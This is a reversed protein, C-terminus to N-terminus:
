RTLPSLEGKIASEIEYASVTIPGSIFEPVNYAKLLLDNYQPDKQPLLFPASVRGESDCHAIFLRTYLGDLRKSSFLIWRGNSSWAHYSDTEHSNLISIDKRTGDRLDIMELDAGGLWITFAGYDATTYLLFRGDPSIRPMLATKGTSREDVVTYVSDGLLGTEADFGVRYIGYKLNMYEAPLRCTDGRSFYLWKGDPSWEPFTEYAQKSNFRDDTILRNNKYDYLILDSELDFVAARDEGFAQFVLRTLNTSFAIYNGSPHWKPYVGSTITEDTKLNIKKLKEGDVIITAPNVIRSHFLFKDPSYRDFSHCNVCGKSGGTLSTEIIPTEDFNTLNRQYLGMQAWHEYSPEILRYAIYPDISDTSVSLTFPEYRTWQNKFRATVVVSITRGKADALMSAWKKLPIEVTPDGKYVWLSRGECSYEVQVRDAYMVEYNIPAINPPICIQRYDPFLQPQVPSEIVNTPRTCACLVVILWGAVIIRM